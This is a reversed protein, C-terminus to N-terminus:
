KNGKFYMSIIVKGIYLGAIVLFVSAVDVIHNGSDSEFNGVPTEVRFSELKPRDNM